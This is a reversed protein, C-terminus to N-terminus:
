ERLGAVSDYEVLCYDTLEYTMPDMKRIQSPQGNFADTHGLIYYQGDASIRMSEPYFTLDIETTFDNIKKVSEILSVDDGEETNPSEDSDGDSEQLSSCACPCMGYIM